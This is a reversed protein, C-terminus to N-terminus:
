GGGTEVWGQGKCVPCTKKVEVTRSKVKGDKPDTYTEVKQEFIVGANDCRRCVTRGM